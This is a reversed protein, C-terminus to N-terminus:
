ALYYRKFVIKVLSLKAVISTIDSKQRKCAVELRDLDFLENALVLRRLVLILGDNVDVKM